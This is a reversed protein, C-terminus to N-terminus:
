AQLKANLFNVKVIIKHSYKPLSFNVINLKNYGNYHYAFFRNSKSWNQRRFFHYHIFIYVEIWKLELVLTICWFIAIKADNRLRVGYERERNKQGSPVENKRWFFFIEFFKVGFINLKKQLGLYEFNCVFQKIHIRTWVTKKTCALNSCLIIM